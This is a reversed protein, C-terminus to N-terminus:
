SDVREQGLERCETAGEGWGLVNKEEEHHQGQFDRILPGLENQM